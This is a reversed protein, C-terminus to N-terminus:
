YAFNLAVAFLFAVSLFRQTFAYRQGFNINIETSLSLSTASQSNNKKQENVFHSIFNETLTEDLQM